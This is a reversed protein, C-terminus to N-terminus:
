WTVHGSLALVMEDVASTQQAIDLLTELRLATQTSVDGERRVVFCLADEESAKVALMAPSEGRTIIKDARTLLSSIQERSFGLYLLPGQLRLYIAAEAIPISPLTYVFLGARGRTRGNAVFDRFFDVNSQLCGDSNTGLIGIDQRRDESYPVGADYLALAAVGCTLQSALDYKGFRKAPYSFVSERELSSRLSGVDAYPQRVKKMVCGYEAGTIWGIGTIVSMGPLALRSGMKEVGCRL